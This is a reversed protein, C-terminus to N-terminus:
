VHLHRLLLCSLIIICVTSGKYVCMCLCIFICLLTHVCVRVTCHACLCYTVCMCTCASLERQGLSHCGTSWGGEWLLFSLQLACSTMSCKQSGITHSPLEVRLMGMVPDSCSFSDTTTHHSVSYSYWHETACEPEVQKPVPM